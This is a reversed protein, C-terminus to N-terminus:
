MIGDMTSRAENRRELFQNKSPRQAAVFLRRRDHAQDLIRPDIAM